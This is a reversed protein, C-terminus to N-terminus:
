ERIMDPINPYPIKALKKRSKELTVSSHTNKSRLSLPTAALSSM